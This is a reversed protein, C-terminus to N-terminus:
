ASGIAQDGLDFWPFGLYIPLKLIISKRVNVFKRFQIKLVLFSYFKSFKDMKGFNLILIM